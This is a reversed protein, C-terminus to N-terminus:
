EVKRLARDFFDLVKRMVNIQTIEKRFYHDEDGYIELTCKRGNSEMREKLQEAQGLPVREDKAGQLILLPATIEACHNIPSRQHYFVPNEEPSGIQDEIWERMWGSTSTHFTELDVFGFLDVGAAWKEPARAMAMLM